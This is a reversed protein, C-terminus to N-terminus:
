LAAHKADAIEVAYVESMLEQEPSHLMHREFQPHRADDQRKKRWGLDQKPAFRVEGRGFFLEM